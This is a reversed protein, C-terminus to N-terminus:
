GGMLAAIAIVLGVACIAMGVFRFHRLMFAGVVLVALALLIGGAVEIM